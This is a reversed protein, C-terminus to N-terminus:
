GLPFSNPCLCARGAHDPRTPGETGKVGANRAPHVPVAPPQRGQWTRSRAPWGGASSISHTKKISMRPVLAALVLKGDADLRHRKGGPATRNLGQTLGHPLPSVHVTFSAGNQLMAQGFAHARAARAQTRGLVQGHKPRNCHHQSALRFGAPAQYASTLPAAIM